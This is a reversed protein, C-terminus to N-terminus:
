PDEDSAMYKDESPSQSSILSLSFFSISFINGTSAINLCILSQFFYRSPTKTKLVRVSVIQVNGDQIPFAGLHDAAIGITTTISDISALLPDSGTDLISDIYIETRSGTAQSYDFTIVGYAM